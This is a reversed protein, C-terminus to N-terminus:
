RNKAAQAKEEKAEEEEMKEALVKLNQQVLWNISNKPYEGKANAQGASRGTLIEMAEDVTDIAWIHFKGAAVADIVTQHLMLNQVNRRPIIVGQTGTLGQMLCLKYFGEIKENAGGIPQIFGLQNVSGTVAVSQNIPVQSMASLLAYLETGSASDGEVGNYMQEFTVSASFTLPQDKAYKGGLYGAIIMSGKDHIAGSLKVERDINIIGEDGVFVQATIRSPTGFAYDGLDYVALGNIQGVVAGKTELLISGNKISKLTLDEEQSHRQRREELATNIDTLMIVQHKAKLAFYNAEALLDLISSLRTTMENQDEVERSAEEIIMAVAERHIPLFGEEKCVKALFKALLLLNKKSRPVSYAFDAKVKFLRGFEEDQSKLIYYADPSGILVVKTQLPIPAPHTTGVTKPRGDEGLDETHIEKLRLAKKLGEWAAPHNAIDQVQIVLYGGNAKHLAGARISTHDAKLAGRIDRYELYGLINSPTPNSEFIVPAGQQRKRDVLVNVKYEVLVNTDNDEEELLPNVDDPTSGPAYEEDPLFDRYKDIINASVQEFYKNLQDNNIEKFSEKLAEILQKVMPKILRREQDQRKQLAEKAIRLREREFDAFSEHLAAAGRELSAREEETIQAYDEESQPLENNILPVITLHDEERRIGLRFKRAQQSLRKFLRDEKKRMDMSIKARVEHTQDTFIARPIGQSLDAVLEDMAKSLKTAWGVPLLLGIPEDPNDFNYVYCIDEPVKENHAKKNIINKLISTKGSGTDGIVVVNYGRTPIELGFQIAKLARDQHFLDPACNDPLEATTEFPLSQADCKLRLSEVPVLLEPRPINLKKSTM